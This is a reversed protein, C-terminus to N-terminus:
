DSEAPIVTKGANGDEWRRWGIAPILLPLLGVFLGPMWDSPPLGHGSWIVLITAALIMVTAPPLVLKWLRTSPHKWPALQIVLGVVCLGAALAFAGFRWEGAFLAWAALIFM